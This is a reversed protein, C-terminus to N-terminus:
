DAWKQFHIEFGFKGASGSGETAELESLRYNTLRM